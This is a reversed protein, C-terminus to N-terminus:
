RIQCAPINFPLLRHLEAVLVVYAIVADIATVTMLRDFRGRRGTHGRCLRTHVAMALEKRILRIKLRDTRTESLVLGNLPLTNVVQRFEGVEVVANMHRFTHATRGTVARDILHRSNVLLVGKLHFPADRTMLLRLFENPRLGLDEIHVKARAIDILRFAVSQLDIILDSAPFHQRTARSTM